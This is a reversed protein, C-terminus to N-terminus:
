DGSGSLVVQTCIGKKLGRELAAWTLYLNFDKVM